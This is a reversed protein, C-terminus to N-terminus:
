IRIEEIIKKVLKINLSSYIPLCIVRESSQKAFDFSSRKQKIENKYIEFETIIPYFYRRGNIGSNKLKNYLQDRTLPYDDEVFIPFYSYNNKKLKM